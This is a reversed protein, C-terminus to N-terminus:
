IFFIYCIRDPYMKLLIRKIYFRMYNLLIKYAYNKERKNWDTITSFVSHIACPQKFRNLNIWHQRYSQTSRSFLMGLSLM